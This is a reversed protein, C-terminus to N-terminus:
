RWLLYPLIVCDEMSLMDSLKLTKLFLSSQNEQADFSDPFDNLYQVVLFPPDEPMEHRAILSSTLYATSVPPLYVYIRLSFFYLVSIPFSPLVIFIFLWREFLLFFYQFSIPLANTLNCCAPLNWFLHFTQAASRHQPGETRLCISPYSYLELVVCFHTNWM